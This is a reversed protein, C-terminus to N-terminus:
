QTESVVRFNINKVEFRINHAMCINYQEFGQVIYGYWIIIPQNCGEQLIKQELVDYEKQTYPFILRRFESDIKLVCREETM